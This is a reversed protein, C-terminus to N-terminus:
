SSQHFYDHHARMIQPIRRYADDLDPEWQAGLRVTEPYIMIAGGDGIYTPIVIRWAGHDYVVLWTQLHAIFPRSIVEPVYLEVCQTRDGTFDGRVYLDGKGTNDARLTFRTAIHASLAVAAAEYEERTADTEGPFRKWLSKSEELSPTGHVFGNM